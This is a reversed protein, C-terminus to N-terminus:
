DISESGTELSTVHIAKRTYGYKLNYSAYRPKETVVSSSSNLGVSCVIRETLGHLWYQTGTYQM